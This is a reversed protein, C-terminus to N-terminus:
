AFGWLDHLKSGCIPRLMNGRSVLEACLDGGHANEISFMSCDANRGCASVFVSNQSVSKSNSYDLMGEYIVNSLNINNAYSNSSANLAVVWPSGRGGTDVYIINKSLGLVM